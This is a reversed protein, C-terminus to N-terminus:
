TSDQSTGDDSPVRECDFCLDTERNTWYAEGCVPCNVRRLSGKRKPRPQLEPPLAGFPDTDCGCAEPDKVVGTGRRM